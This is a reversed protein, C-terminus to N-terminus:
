NIKCILFDNCDQPFADLNTGHMAHSISEYSVLLCHAEEINSHASAKFSNNSVFKQVAKKLYPQSFLEKLSNESEAVAKGGLRRLEDNMNDQSFILRLRKGAANDFYLTVTERIKSVGVIECDAYKGKTQSLKKNILANLSIGCEEAEIVLFHHLEKSIRVNFQGSYEQKSFPLPLDKGLERLKNKDSEWRNSLMAVAHVGCSGVGNIEPLERFYAQWKGNELLKVRIEFDDFSSNLM